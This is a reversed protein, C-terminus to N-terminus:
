NPGEVEFSFSKGCLEVQIKVKVRYARTIAFSRFGPPMYGPIRSTFWAECENAQKQAPLSNDTSKRSRL